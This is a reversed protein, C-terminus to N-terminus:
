TALQLVIVAAVHPLSPRGHRRILTSLMPTALPSTTPTDYRVTRASAPPIQGSCEPRQPLSRAGAPGTRAPPPAGAQRVSGAPSVRNEAPGPPSSTGVM